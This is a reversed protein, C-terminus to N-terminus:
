KMRVREMLLFADVHNYVELERKLEPFTCKTPELNTGEVDTLTTYELLTSRPPFFYQFDNRVAHSFTCHNDLWKMEHRVSVTNHQADFYHYTAEKVGRVREAKYNVAGTVRHLSDVMLEIFEVCGPPIASGREVPEAPGEPSIRAYSAMIPSRDVLMMYQDINAVVAGTDIPQAGQSAACLTFLLLSPLIMHRHMPRFTARVVPM